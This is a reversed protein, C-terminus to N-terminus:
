IYKLRRILHRLSTMCFDDRKLNKQSTESIDTEISIQNIDRLSMEHQSHSSRIDLVNNDFEQSLYKFNNKSLNKVLSDLSSSLLQFSDIFSLKNYKELGNPIVNIKLNFKGLEQMILHSDYNKLIQFVGSIKYNLKVNNNCDRRTSVRYKGTIHCHDRVKVDNDVYDHDYGWCKISNVFDESDEKTVVLKKNFHKKKRESCYESEEIMSDIFNYVADEGLYTNFHKICKDDVCVLKCGYSSAIHTKYKNTYSEKQIKSEIM